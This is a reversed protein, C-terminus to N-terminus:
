GESLEALAEEPLDFNASVNQVDDHDDLTELLKLVGRAQEKDLEVTNSPIRTVERTEVPIQAASLAETLASYNDPDCTLQLKDGERSIDDAGAEMAIEMLQEETAAAPDILFLGKREFM